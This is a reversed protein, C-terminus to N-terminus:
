WALAELVVIVDVQLELDLFLPALYISVPLRVLGAWHAQWPARGLHSTFVIHYDVSIFRFALQSAM